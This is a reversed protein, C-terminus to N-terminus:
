PKVQYRLAWEVSLAVSHFPNPNKVHEAAPTTATESGPQCTCFDNPAYVHPGDGGLRKTEIERTGCDERAVKAQQGWRIHDLLGPRNIEEKRRGLARVVSARSAVFRTGLFTLFGRKLHNSVCFFHLRPPNNKFINCM